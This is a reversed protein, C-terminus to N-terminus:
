NVNPIIMQQPTPISPVSPANFSSFIPSNITIKRSFVLYVFIFLLCCISWFYSDCNVVTIKEVEEKDEKKETSLVCSLCIIILAIIVVIIVPNDKVYVSLSTIYPGIDNM